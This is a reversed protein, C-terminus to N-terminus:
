YLIFKEKEVVYAKLFSNGVESVFNFWNEMSMEDTTKCYDFFLGLEVHKMAIHTGSIPIVNNKYKSLVRITNTALPKVLKIFIYQM